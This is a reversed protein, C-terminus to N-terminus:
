PRATPKEGASAALGKEAAQKAKEPGGEVALASQYEAKAAEQKGEDDYIHALYIHSWALVM